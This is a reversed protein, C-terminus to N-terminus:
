HRTSKNVGLWCIALTAAQINLTSISTQFHPPHYVRLEESLRHVSPLVGQNVSKRPEKLACCGPYLQQGQSGSSGM